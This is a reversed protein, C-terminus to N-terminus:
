AKAGNRWQIPCKKHNTNSYFEIIVCNQLIAYEGGKSSIQLQCCDRSELFFEFFTCNERSGRNGEIQCFHGLSHIVESSKQSGTGLGEQLRQQSLATGTNRPPTPNSPLWHLQLALSAWIKDCCRAEEAKVSCRHHHHHLAYIQMNHMNKAYEQMYEAFKQMNDYIKSITQM